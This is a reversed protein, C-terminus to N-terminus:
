LHPPYHHHPPSDPIGTIAGPAAAESGAAKDEHVGEAGSVVLLMKGAESSALEQV